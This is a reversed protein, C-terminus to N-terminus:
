KEVLSWKVAYRILEHSNKLDLKNKINANHSEVTKASIHLIEAIGNTSHGQSILQLVELERDSLTEFLQTITTKGQDAYHNLLKEKWKKSVYIEGALVQRIAVIINNSAERKSLYGRAGARLVREVYISEDYMSIILILMKPYKILISKTLELGSTEELSIDVLILEPKEKQIGKMAEKANGAEGVTLLDSEQNILQALGERLIPHDDVIFIRSKKM